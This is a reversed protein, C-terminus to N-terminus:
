FDQGYMSYMASTLSFAILGIVLGIILTMAPQILTILRRTKDEAEAEYSRAVALLTTDLNGTEEGVRVMQVMMPLFLKNKSMSGSLGEGKVMGQQVDALAQSLVRNRSGRAILSVVETLPLGAHFLLSMSRCFRALENLHTLQGVLPLKLLIKDWRYRGAQTRFYVALGGTIAAAALLIYAINNQIQNATNILLRTALPLEVGLSQYLKGFSPLVFTVLVGIVAVTVFATIVPFLLANKTEKSTALEKEMYDAVHNLVTELDGSQEGVGLLRCYIPPFVATHKALAASLQSGSRLDAIVDGLVNKLARNVTQLRLLELAAIIDIGSELLMAMQRYFLIIENPKVRFLGATLKDLNLFPVFLKLNVARYGAYGLLETAAEESAASLKGKVIQGSENYAVYQYTM